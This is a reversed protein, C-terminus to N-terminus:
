TVCPVNIMLVHLASLKEMSEQSVTVRLANYVPTSPTAITVITLVFMLLVPEEIHKGLSDTRVAKV